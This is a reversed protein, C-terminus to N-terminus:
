MLMVVICCYLMVVYLQVDVDCYIDSVEDNMDTKFIHCAIGDDTKTGKRLKSRKRSAM